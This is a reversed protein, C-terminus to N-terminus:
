YARKQLAYWQNAGGTWLLINGVVYILSSLLNLVALVLLLTDEFLFLGAIAALVNLTAIGAFVTSVIRAWNKGKGALSGMFAGLGYIIITFILGLIGGARATNPNEASAEPSPSVVFIIINLIIALAVGAYILKVGKSVSAPAPAAPASQEPANGGQYQPPQNAPNNESM